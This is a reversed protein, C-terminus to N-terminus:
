KKIFNIYPEKYHKLIKRYVFISIISNYIIEKLLIDKIVVTFSIDRSLFIMFLYYMLNYVITSGLITLFPLILNEKFVKDDLLGVMYGILFYILANIGIVGGFFVDQILGAVLGTCAGKYKGGLLAFIVVIILSTNPIVGFVRFHQLVTSQLIFNSILILATFIYNLM